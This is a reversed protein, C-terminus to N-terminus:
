RATPRPGCRLRGVVELVEAPEDDVVQRGGQDLTVSSTATGPAGVVPRRQDDAAAVVLLLDARARRAARRRCLPDTHQEEVRRGVHEDAAVLARLRRWGDAAAVSSSLMSRSRCISSGSFASASMTTSVLSRLTWWSRSRIMSSNAPRRRRVGAHLDADHREAELVAQREVDVEDEVAPEQGFGCQTSSSRGSM